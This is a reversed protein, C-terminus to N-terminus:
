QGYGVLQKQYADIVEKTKVLVAAALTRVKAEDTNENEAIFNGGGTRDFVMDVWRQTEMLERPHEEAIRRKDTNMELLTLLAFLVTQLITIDSVARVRLSLLLEWFEATIQPLALTAPGSAHLLLTLTKLFTVLVVPVSAFVSASGYAAVEQQYRNALPFFFAQGFIKALRNPPAKRKTREVAMRSSFTRVKVANLEATSQDAARLALPQILARETSTSAADLSKTSSGVGGYLSHLRPPLQKSPFKTDPLSPNLQDEVVLGALERGGLGLASLVTCRQSLSYDGSFAQRSLWPALVAIDSLLVAILAQLKLEDFNDTEFPDQLNCFMGALEEAHDTVESGFDRKRRILPAASRIGMEFRDHNKDDRLMSILDRIYAPPRVKDRNVLTADEDSDEPDSDPKAYPKFDDIESAGDDDLIETIRDGIVETQAPPRPPGFVPKGNLIQQKERAPPQQVPRPSKSQMQHAQLLESFLRLNGCRDRIDPLHLYWRADDTDMEDTGFNMRSSERDTLRSVATAVVMGLWRARTNSSDLRNSVGQIGNSSRGIVLFAVSNQRNLYGSALLLTQIISEQQRIPAHNIFLPDCFTAFLKELLRYLHDTNDLQAISAISARRAPYSLASSAIPDHLLSVLDQQTNENQILTSLLGTIAAVMRQQETPGTPAMSLSSLWRLSQEVLTRMSYAPVHSLLDTILVPARGGPENRSLATTYLGDCIANFPTLNLARALLQAAASSSHELLAAISRGLWAAYDAANSLWHWEGSARKISDEAQAVASIVKGSALLATLQKWLMDLKVGDKVAAQSSLWIKAVADEGALVLHVLQLLDVTSANSPNPRDKALPDTLRLHTVIANLGAVNRLCAAFERRQQKSFVSWYDSFTATLLTNIIQAQVPGPEHLSLHADPPQDQSLQRLLPILQDLNPQSRLAHLTQELPAAAVSSIASQDVTKTDDHSHTVADITPDSHDRSRPQPAAPRTRVATLLTDGSDVDEHTRVSKVATLFDAM